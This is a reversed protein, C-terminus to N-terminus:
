AVAKNEYVRINMGSCIFVRIYPDSHDTKPKYHSVQDLQDAIANYEKQTLDTDFCIEIEGMPYVAIADDSMYSYDTSTYLDADLLRYIEEESYVGDYQMTDGILDLYMDSYDTNNEYYNVQDEIYQKIDNLKRM